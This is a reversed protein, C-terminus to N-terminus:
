KTPPNVLAQKVIPAVNEITINKRKCYDSTLWDSLEKASKSANCSCCCLAINERNIIKSDNVIHEWTASNKKINKDFKIGCYICCLDRKRVETELWSPINRINM